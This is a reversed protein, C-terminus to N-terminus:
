ETPKFKLSKNEIKSILNIARNCAEIASKRVSVQNGGIRNSKELYKQSMELSETIPNFQSAFEQLAIKQNMPLHNNNALNIFQELSSILPKMDIFCEKSEECKALMFRLKDISQHVLTGINYHKIGGPTLLWVYVVQNKLTENGRLDDARWTVTTKGPPFKLNEPADNTILVKTTCGYLDSAHAKGLFTKVLEPPKGTVLFFQHVDAPVNLDPPITDIVKVDINTNATVKKGDEVVLTIEHLGYALQGSPIILNKGYGWFKETLMGYDEYWRYSYQDDPMPEYIDYTGAATLYIPRSNTAFEGGCQSFTTSEYASPVPSFNVFKGMLNLNVNIPLQDGNVVATSALNGKISFTRSGHDINIPMNTTNQSVFVVPTGNRKFREACFMTSPKLEYQKCPLDQSMYGKCHGMSTELLYVVIDSFNGYETSLPDIFLEMSNIKLDHTESLFSFHLVGKIGQTYTKGDITIIANSPPQIEIESEYEYSRPSQVTLAGGTLVNHKKCEYPRECKINLKASHPYEQDWENMAVLKAEEEDFTHEFCGELFVPKILEGANDCDWITKPKVIVVYTLPDGYKIEPWRKKFGDTRIEHDHSNGPISLSNGEFSNENSDSQENFFPVVCRYLNLRLQSFTSPSPDLVTTTIYEQEGNSNLVPRYNSEIWFPVRARSDYAVYVAEVENQFDITLYKEGADYNDGIKTPILVAGKLENLSIDFAIINPEDVYLPYTQNKEGLFSHHIDPDTGEFMLSNLYWPFDLEPRVERIKPCHWEEAACRWWYQINPGGADFVCGEVICMFFVLLLLLLLRFHRTKIATIM